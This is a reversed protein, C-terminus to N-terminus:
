AALHMWDLTTHASSSLCPEGLEFGHLMLFALLAKVLEVDRESKSSAQAMNTKSYSEESQLLPMALVIALNGLDMRTKAIVWAENIGCSAGFWRSATSGRRVKM